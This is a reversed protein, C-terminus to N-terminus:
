RSTVLIAAAIIPVVLSAFLLFTLTRYRRVLRVAEADDRIWKPTSLLWKGTAQNFAWKFWESDSPIRLSQNEPARWFFGNPRGDKEWMTRHTDYELRVLDDFTQCSWIIITLFYLFVILGIVQWM